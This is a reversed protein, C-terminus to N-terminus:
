FRNLFDSNLFSKTWTDKSKGTIKEVTDCSSFCHFGILAKAKEAGLQEYIKTLNIWKESSWAILLILDNLNEYNSLMITFVDIDNSKVRLKIRWISLCAIACLHTVKRTITALLMLPAMAKKSTLKATGLLVFYIDQSKLHNIVQKELFQALGQKTKKHSLLDKISVTSIDTSEIVKCLM